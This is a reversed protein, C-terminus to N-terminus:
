VANDQDFRSINFRENVFFEDPTFRVIEMLSQFTADAAASARWRFLNYPTETFRM